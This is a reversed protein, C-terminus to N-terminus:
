PTELPTSMFSTYLEVYKQIKKSELVGEGDSKNLAAEKQRLLWLTYAGAIANASLGIFWAKFAREQLQKAQAFKKAGVADPLTLFDFSLYLAYGLQRIM